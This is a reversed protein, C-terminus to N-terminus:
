EFRTVWEDGELVYIPKKPNVIKPTVPQGYQERADKYADIRHKLAKDSYRILGMEHLKRRARSISEPHPMRQLNWYLSKTDDWGSELWVRELLLHEDNVCNNDINYATMVLQQNKTLKM